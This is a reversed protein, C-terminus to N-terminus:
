YSNMLYEYMDRDDASLIDEGKSKYNLFGDLDIGKLVLGSMAVYYVEVQKGGSTEGDFIIRVVAYIKDSQGIVSYLTSDNELDYPDILVGWRKLSDPENEVVEINEWGRMALEEMTKKIAVEVHDSPEMPSPDSTSENDTVPETPAPEKTSTESTVTDMPNPTEISSGKTISEILVNNGTSTSDGITPRMCAVLCVNCALIVAIFAILKRM